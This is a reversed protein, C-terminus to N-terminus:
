THLEHKSNDGSSFVSSASTKGVNEAAEHTPIPEHGAAVKRVGSLVSKTPDRKTM